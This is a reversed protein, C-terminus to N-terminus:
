YIYSPFLVAQGGTSLCQEVLAPIRHLFSQLSFESELIDLFFCAILDYFIPVRKLAQRDGSDDWNQLEAIAALFFDVM